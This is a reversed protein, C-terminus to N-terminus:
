AEVERRKFKLTATTPAREGYHYANCPRCHYPGMPSGHRRHAGRAKAAAEAFTPYKAKGCTM